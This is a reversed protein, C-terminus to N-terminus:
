ICTYITVTPFGRPFDPYSRVCLCLAFNTVIHIPSILGTRRTLTQTHTPSFSLVVHNLALQSIVLNWIPIQNDLNSCVREVYPLIFAGSVPHEFWPLFFDPCKITQCSPKFGDLAGRSSWTEMVALNYDSTNARYHTKGAALIKGPGFIKISTRVSFLHTSWINVLPQIISCLCHYLTWTYNHHPWCPLKSDIGAVSFQETGTFELWTQSACALYGSRPKPKIKGSIWM